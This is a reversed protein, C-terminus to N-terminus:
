LDQEIYYNVRCSDCLFVISDNLNEIFLREGKLLLFHILLWVRPSAVGQRYLCASSCFGQALFYLQMREHGVEGLLGDWYCRWQCVVLRLFAGAQGHLSPSEM